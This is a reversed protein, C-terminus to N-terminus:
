TYIDRRDFLVIAILLLVISAAILGLSNGWPIGNVIAKGYFRFISLDGLPKWTSSIKGLVDFLYMLFTLGFAIGIVTGRNRLQASLVLAFTGLVLCIPLLNLSGSMISRLSLGAGVAESSGWTIVGIGILTAIFVAVFASWIAAVFTPRPIPNGLMIDLAGREEAGAIANAFTMIPFFVMVLPGYSFVQSDLYGGITTMADLDFAKRWSEPYSDMMSFAGSEQFSPYAAVIFAIYLGFGITWWIGSRLYQSAFHRFLILFTTM